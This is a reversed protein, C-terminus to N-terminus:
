LVAMHFSSPPLLVFKHGFSTIDTQTQVYRAFRWIEGQPLHCLFTNGQFNLPSGNPLFKKFEGTVCDLYNEM